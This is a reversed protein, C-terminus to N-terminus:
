VVFYPGLNTFIHKNPSTLCPNSINCLLKVINSVHVFKTSMTVLHAYETSPIPPIGHVSTGEDRVTPEKIVEYKKCCKRCILSYINGM